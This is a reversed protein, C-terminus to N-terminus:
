IEVGVECSGEKKAGFAGWFSFSPNVEGSSPLCLDQAM